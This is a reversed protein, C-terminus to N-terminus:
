TGLIANVVAEAFGEEVDRIDTLGGYLGGWAFTKSILKRSLERGSAQDFLVLEGDIHMQGLGAMMMRAFRSGSEYRTIVLSAGLVGPEAAGAGASLERPSPPGAVPTTSVSESLKEFRGPQRQNLKALIRRSIRELDDEALAVTPAPSTVLALQRYAALDVTALEPGAPRVSGATEACAALGTLAALVLVMRWHRLVSRMSLIEGSADGALSPLVDDRGADVAADDRDQWGGIVFRGGGAGGERM